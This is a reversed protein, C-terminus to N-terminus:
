GIGTEPGAEGMAPNFLTLLTDLFSSGGGGDTGGTTGQGKLMSLAILGGIGGGLNSMIADQIQEQSLLGSIGTGAASTSAGAAGLGLNSLMSGLNGLNGAAAQKGSALLNSIDGAEKFRSQAIAGATGSGRPGFESTMRRSADYQSLISGVEPQMAQMMQTTDGSLLASWFNQAQTLAGAGQSLLGPAGKGLLSALGIQGQTAQNFGSPAFGFMSKLFPM